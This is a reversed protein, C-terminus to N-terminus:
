HAIVKRNGSKRKQENGGRVYNEQYDLDGMLYSNWKAIDREELEKIGHKGAPKNM